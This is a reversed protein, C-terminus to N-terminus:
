DPEASNDPVTLLELGGSVWELLLDSQEKTLDLNSIAERGREPDEDQKAYLMAFVDTWAMASHPPPVLDESKAPAWGSSVGEEWALYLEELYCAALAVLAFRQDRTLSETDLDRHQWSSPLSQFMWGSYDPKATFWPTPTSRLQKGLASLAAMASDLDVGSDYKWLLSSVVLEGVSVREGNEFLDFSRPQFFAELGHQDLFWEAGLGGVAVLDSAAEPDDVALERLREGQATLLLEIIEKALRNATPEYETLHDLALTLEAALAAEDERELWRSTEGVFADRIPVANEPNARLLSLVAEFSIEQESPPAGDEAMWVLIFRQVAQTTLARSVKPAPVLFELSQVAFDLRNGQEDDGVDVRDATLQALLENAAGDRNQELLHFALKAVVDWERLSIRPNLVDLLEEPTPHMRVLHGATFFELFTRHTFQYLREGSRTTGIDTFVWPRGRCFEIFRTAELKAEDPDEFRRNQLYSATEAILAREGVGGQLGEDSYIWAALHQMTPRILSEISLPKGIQRLRDWRDFLLEACAEYVDTRNRPIYGSGKYLSCMLGLLLANTRLDEASASEEMFSEAEKAADEAGRDSVTFWKHAYEEVERDTFPELHFSAFTKPPLPAEQYGVERSTVLIPAGPYLNAFSTVDRSIEARYSTDLLEDLGDFIVVARNTLLLYEIAGAPPKVQYYFNSASEIYDLISCPHDKKHAGFKRLEVFFPVAGKSTGEEGLLGRALDSALKRALTSKGSGPNGLVVARFLDEVFAEHKVGYHPSGDASLRGPVYLDDIPFQRASDLAAPVIIGERDAVQRAYKAAYEDISEADLSPEAALVDLVKQVSELAGRLEGHRRAAKTDLATTSGAEIAQDLSRECLRVLTAFLRGLEERGASDADGVRVRWLEYFEQEIAESATAKGNDAYIQRVVNQAERSELFPRLQEGGLEPKIAEVETLEAVAVAVAREASAAVAAPELEGLSRSLLEGLGKVAASVLLEQM